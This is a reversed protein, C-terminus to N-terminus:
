ELIEPNSIEFLVPECGCYTCAITKKNVPNYEIDFKPCHTGCPTQIAQWEVQQPQEQGVIALGSQKRQVPMMVPPRFPCNLIYGDRTIGLINEDLSVLTYTSQKM